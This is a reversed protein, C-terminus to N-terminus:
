KLNHTMGKCRVIVPKISHMQTWLGEVREEEYLHAVSFQLNYSELKMDGAVIDGLKQLHQLANMM